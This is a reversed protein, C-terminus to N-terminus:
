EIQKLCESVSTYLVSNIKTYLVEGNNCTGMDFSLHYVHPYQETQVGEKLNLQIGSTEDELDWWWNLPPVKFTRLDKPIIDPAFRKLKELTPKYMEHENTYFGGIKRSKRNYVIPIHDLFMGMMNENANNRGHHLLLVPTDELYTEESGDNGYYYSLVRSILDCSAQIPEEAFASKAGKPLNFTKDSVYGVTERKAIQELQLIAQRFAGCKEIDEKPMQYCQMSEHIKNIHAAYSVQKPEPQIGTHLMEDLLNDFIYISIKDVVVHSWISLVAYENESLKVIVKQDLITEGNFISQTRLLDSGNAVLNDLTVGSAELTLCPIKTDERYNYEYFLDTEGDYCTRLVGQQKIILKITDSIEEITKNNIIKVTCLNGWEMQQNIFFRHMVLPAFPTKTAQTAIANSEEIQKTLSQILIKVNQDRKDNKIEFTEGAEPLKVEGSIDRRDNMDKRVMQRALEEITRDRIVNDVRISYGADRMKTAVRIAKLSNGGLELFKNKISINELNLVEEFARLLAKEKEDSPPVYSVQSPVEPTPLAGKDLKGRATVPLAELQAIYVPIMYETLTEALKERIKDVYIKEDSVIYACIGPDGGYEKVAVACSKVNEIRRICSEIEKLEVRQGRIKVLDDVRGMYEINGNPLWRAYDGSRYLKGKGYPNDVFKEQTLEPLNLYGRAIGEGAVCMEGTVGISCIEDSDAELIYIKTDDDKSTRGITMTTFERPIKYYSVPGGLETAGLMNILQTDSNLEFMGACKETLAEGALVINKVGDFISKDEFLLKQLLSPTMFMINAYNRSIERKLSGPQLLVAKSILVLCGGDLLTTWTGFVFAAFAISAIQLWIMRSNVDVMERTGYVSNIVNRHEALVGKPNGTTGSTYLLYVLNTPVIPLFLNGTEGEYLNKNKLNLVSIELDFNIGFDVTLLVRIKADKLMYKMREKPYSSDMPVYAGGAKIIGLMAIIVEPCRESIIAVFDEKQVGLAVLKRALQNAKENLEKYTLKEEEYVVAIEEPNNNASEEFLEVLTKDNKYATNKSNFKESIKKKELENVVSM